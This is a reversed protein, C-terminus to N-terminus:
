KGDRDISFWLCYIGVLWLAGGITTLAWDSM